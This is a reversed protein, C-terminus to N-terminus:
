VMPRRPSISSLSTVRSAHVTPSASCLRGSLVEEPVGVRSFMTVLEEAITEAKITTLGMAEPYRTAYEVMTVIYRNGRETIAAIPGVLDVAVREFPRDILPMSTFPVKFVRCNQVTRQCIDCSQCYRSVDGSVGPWFFERTIRDYTKYIGQHGSMICGHGLKMVNDRLPQPVALQKVERGQEEKVRWLIGNKVRFQPGRERSDTIQSKAKEFWSSMSQDEIQLRSLEDPSLETDISHTVKLLKVKHEQRAQVRTTVAQVEQIGVDPNDPIVDSCRFEGDYTVKCSWNLDEAQPVKGVILTTCPVICVLLRSRV